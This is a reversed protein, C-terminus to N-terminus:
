GRVEVARAQPVLPLQSRVTDLEGHAAAWIVSDAGLKFALDGEYRGAFEPNQQLATALDASTGIGKALAYQQGDRCNGQIGARIGDANPQAQLAAYVQAAGPSAVGRAVFGQAVSARYGAPLADVCLALCAGVAYERKVAANLVEGEEVTKFACEITAVGASVIAEAVYGLSHLAFKALGHSVVEHVVFERLSHEREQEAREARFMPGELKVPHEPDELHNTEMARHLLADTDIREGM